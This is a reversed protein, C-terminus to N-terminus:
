DGMVPEDGPALVVIEHAYNRKRQGETVSDWNRRTVNDVYEHHREDFRELDFEEPLPMVRDHDEVITLEFGSKLQEPTWFGTDGWITGPRSIEMQKGLMMMRFGPRDVGLAPLDVYLKAPAPVQDPFLAVGVWNGKKLAGMIRFGTGEAFVEAAAEARLLASLWTSLAPNDGKELEAGLDFHVGIIRGNGLQRQTVAPAGDRAFQALVTTGELVQVERRPTDPSLSIRKEEAMFAAPALPAPEGYSVGVMEATMPQEQTLDPRSVSWDADTSIITGGDEVFRRLAAMLEASLGRVSYPPAILVRYSGHREHARTFIVEVPLSRSVNRVIAQERNVVPRPDALLMQLPEQHHLLAVRALSEADAWLRQNHIHRALEAPLNPNNGYMILRWLQNFTFYAGGPSPRFCHTNYVGWGDHAHAWRFTNPYFGSATMGPSAVLFDAGLRALEVSDMGWCWGSSYHATALIQLGFQLGRQRTYEILDRNYETIVSQKFLIYRRRWVDETDQWQRGEALREVMDDPPSEGFQEVCFDAFSDVDDGHFDAYSFWLEDNMAIGQFSASNGYREAYEDILRHCRERWVPSLLDEVYSRGGYLYLKGEHDKACYKEAFQESRACSHWAAWVYMGEEEAVEVLMGLPDFNPYRVNSDPVDTPRNVRDGSVDTWYIIDTVGLWKLQLVDLRLRNRFFELEQESGARRLGYGRWTQSDYTIFFRGGLETVPQRPLYSGALMETGFWAPTPLLRRLEDLSLQEEILKRRQAVEDAPRQSLRAAGAWQLANMLLQLEAGTPEREAQAFTAPDYFYGPVMGNFVIRGSETEGAVVVPDGARDGVVVVGDPGPQMLLHDYYGHEFEAPLDSVMPHADAIPMVVIDERRGSVKAVIDPFLTEPQDRGTAAHNLVLGGGCGVFVRIAKVPDPQDLRCSGVLLVDYGLLEDATLSRIVTARIDERGALAKATAQGGLGGRFVAVKLPEQAQAACAVICMCWFLAFVSSIRM